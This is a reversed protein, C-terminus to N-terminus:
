ISDLVLLVIRARTNIQLLDVKLRRCLESEKEREEEEERLGFKQEEPIEM